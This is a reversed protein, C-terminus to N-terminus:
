DEERKRKMVAMAIAEEVRNQREKKILKSLSVIEDRVAVVKNNSTDM